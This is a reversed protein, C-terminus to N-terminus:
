LVGKDIGGHSRDGPLVFFMVTAAIKMGVSAVRYSNIGPIEPTWCFRVAWMMALGGPRGAHSEVPRTNILSIFYM